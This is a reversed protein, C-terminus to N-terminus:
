FVLLVTFGSGSLGDPQVEADPDSDRLWLMVFNIISVLLGTAYM